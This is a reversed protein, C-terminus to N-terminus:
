SRRGFFTELDATSIRIANSVRTCRLEGGDILRYLLATSVDLLAALHRVTFFARAGAVGVRSKRRQVSTCNEKKAARTKHPEIPAERSCFPTLHEAADNRTELKQQPRPERYCVAVRPRQIRKAGCLRLCQVGLASCRWISPAGLLASGVESAEGKMRRHMQVRIIALSERV